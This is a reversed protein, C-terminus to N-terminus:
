KRKSFLQAAVPGSGRKAHLDVKYPVAIPVLPCLPKSGGGVVAGPGAMADQGALFNYLPPALLHIDLDSLGPGFAVIAYCKTPELQVIFDLHGGEVLTGKAVLGDAVMGPAHQTATARLGAEVPDLTTAAPGLTASGAAAAAALLSALANPDAAAATHAAAPGADACGNPM